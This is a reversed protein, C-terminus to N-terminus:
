EETLGWVKLLSTNVHSRIFHQLNKKKTALTEASDGSEPSNKKAVEEIVDSGVNTGKLASSLAGILQTQDSDYQRNSSTNTGAKIAQGLGEGIASGVGVGLPLPVGLAQTAAGLGAGVGAVANPNLGRHIRGSIGGTEEVLRDFAEMGQALGKDAQTAGDYQKSIEGMQDKAKPTYQLNKYHQDSGPLLIGPSEENWTGTSGPSPPSGYTQGAAQGSGSPLQQGLSQPRNTPPPPPQFGRANADNLATGYLNQNELQKAAQFQLYNARAQPTGLKAALLGAQHTYIDNMSVKTLAQTTKSEGYADKYAGYITKVNEQRNKQADIDRDIQANLFRLAPNDTSGVKGAAVGGLILGIASSIKRGTNMSEQYHNPNIPISSLAKDFDSTKGVFDQLLAADRKMADQRQQIYQEEIPQSGRARAIDVGEQARLGQAQQAVGQQFGANPAGGFTAGAAGPQQPQQTNGQQLQPQQLVYNPKAPVQPAPAGGGMGGLQPQAANINITTSHDPDASKQFEADPHKGTVMGLDAGSSAAEGGEDYNMRKQPTKKKEEKSELGAKDALRKIATRQLRSLSSLSVKMEHGKEHKLTASKGDHAVVKWGSFNLM